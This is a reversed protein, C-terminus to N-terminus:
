GMLLVRVSIMTTVECDVLFATLRTLCAFPRRLLVRTPHCPRCRNSVVGATASGLTKSVHVSEGLRVDVQNLTLAIVSQDLVSDTLCRRRLSCGVEVDILWSENNVIAKLVLVPLLVVHRPRRGVIM